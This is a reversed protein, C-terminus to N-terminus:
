HQKSQQKPLSYAVAQKWPSPQGNGPITQGVFPLVTYYIFVLSMLQSCFSDASQLTLVTSVCKPCSDRNLGECVVQNCAQLLDM